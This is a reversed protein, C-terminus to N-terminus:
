FPRTNEAIGAASWANSANRSRKVSRITFPQDSGMVLTVAASIAAVVEQSIGEEVVPPASKVSPPAVPPAKSASERPQEKQAMKEKKRNAIGKFILGMIVCLLVLLLLVAFVVGIGSVLVGWAENWDINGM